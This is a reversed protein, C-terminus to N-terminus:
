ERITGNEFDSSLLQTITLVKNLNKELKEYEKGRSIGM